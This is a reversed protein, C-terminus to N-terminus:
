IKYKTELLNGIAQFGKIQPLVLCCADLFTIHEISDFYNQIFKEFFSPNERQLKFIIAVVFEFSSDMSARECRYFVEDTLFTFVNLEKKQAHVYQMFRTKGVGSRGEVWIATPIEKEIQKIAEQVNQYATKRDFFKQM